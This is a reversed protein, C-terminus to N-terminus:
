GATEGTRGNGIVKLDRAKGRVIQDLVQILQTNCYIDFELRERNRTMDPNFEPMLWDMLFKQQLTFMTVADLGIQTSVFELKQEAINGVRTAEKILEPDTMSDFKPRKM